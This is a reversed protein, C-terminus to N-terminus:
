LNRLSRLPPVVWPAGAGPPRGLAGARAFAAQHEDYWRWWWWSAWARRAAWAPDSRAGARTADEEEEEFTPAFFDDADHRAESVFPGRERQEWAGWAEEEKTVFGREAAGAEAAAAEAAAAGVGCRASWRAM